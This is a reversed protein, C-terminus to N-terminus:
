ANGPDEAALLQQAGYCGRVHELLGAKTYARFKMDLLFKGPIRGHPVLGPRIPNPLHLEYWLELWECGKCWLGHEVHELDVVSAFNVSAMGFYNDVRNPDPVPDPIRLPDQRPNGAQLAPRMFRAVDRANESGLRRSAVQDNFYQITNYRTLAANAVDQVSVLRRSAPYPKEGRAGLHGAITQLAPLQKIQKSTLGFIKRTTTPAMLCCRPNKNMCAWCVRECTPLFLVEGFSPCYACKESRLAGYVDFISHREAIKLRCLAVLTDAAHKMVVRYELSDNAVTHAAASTHSFRVLSQADLHGLVIRLLEPSGNLKDLSGITSLDSNRPIVATPKPPDRINILKSLYTDPRHTCAFRSILENKNLQEIQETHQAGAM